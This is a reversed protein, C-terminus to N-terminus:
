DRVSKAKSNCCTWLLFQKPNLMASISTVLVEGADYRPGVVNFRIEQRQFLSGHTQSQIARLLLEVPIPLFIKM